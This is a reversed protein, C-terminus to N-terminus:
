GYRQLVIAANIGGFAFSNKVFRDFKARRLATVHDIGACGEGPQDLNRTPILCGDRQMCVCAILELAGSAGLTHGFHGKFSSVPVRGEGFIRGIAEAEAQDGQITGTAHANVYGVAAPPLASRELTERLCAVISACRPQAMHTGDCTSAFGVVEALINAGRARAAEESELILAGSGEGCVIGDRDRDFPRPTRQPQRNYHNSAVQVLDFSAAAAVHLEDAGGCLMLDQQGYAVAEYGYGIAQLASACAANPSLVRGTAGLVHALNAACTHSMFQLFINAPLGGVARREFCAAFFQAVSGISGMTSAFSIGARGASFSSEPVRAQQLAEQSALHALIAVRGMSRRFKRPITQEDLPESLPAGVWSSLDHVEPQWQPQLNVVASRNAYLGRMLATVGVGYPSAAGLGTIMVKRLAM